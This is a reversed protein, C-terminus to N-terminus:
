RVRVALGVGLSSTCSRPEWTAFPCPSPEQTPIFPVFLVLLGFPYLFPSVTTTAPFLALGLLGGCPSLVQFLVGTFDCSPIDLCEYRFPKPIECCCNNDSNPDRDQGTSTIGSVGTFLNVGSLFTTAVLRATYARPSNM